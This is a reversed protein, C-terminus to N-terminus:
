KSDEDPLVGYGVHALVDEPRPEYKERVDRVGAPVAFDDDEDPIEIYSEAGLRYKEEPRRAALKQFFFDEYTHIIREVEAALEKIRDETSTDKCKGASFLVRPIRELFDWVTKFYQKRHGGIHGQLAAGTGRVKAYYYAVFFQTASSPLFICNRGSNIDYGAKNAWANVAPLTLGNKGNMCCLAVMHHPAAIYGAIPPLQYKEAHAVLKRGRRYRKFIVDASWEADALPSVFKGKDDRPYHRSRAADGKIYTRGNATLTDDLRPFQKSPLKRQKSPKHNQGCLICKEIGVAPATAGDLQNPM